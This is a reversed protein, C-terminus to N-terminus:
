EFRGGILTQYTSRSTIANHQSDYSGRADEICVLTSGRTTETDVPTM